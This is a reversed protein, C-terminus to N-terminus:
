TARAAIRYALAELALEESVNLLLRQRTDEVLDIAHRLVLPDHDAADTKLTGLRDVNLVLDPADLAVCALDRYWLGVLHLGLELTSTAARRRARRARDTFETRLRRREKKSVLELAEELGAEVESEAREGDRRARGLLAAWPRDVLEATLAARALREAAERLQEGDPGALREARGADGLSLRACARALEPEIGQQELRGAIADPDLAEFRVKQCRSVITPLVETPRETILVIHVHPAPEELTKLMRAAAEDNMTDAREIVFVRRSAEFPTRTAAAVVPEDVDSRLLEHAGSPVVWTLDPHVGREVRGRASAPAAERKGSGAPGHFLYAHSPTGGEALAAGLVAKAHPHQDLVDLAATVPAHINGPRASARGPDPRIAHM